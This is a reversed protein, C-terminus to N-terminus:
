VWRDTLYWGSNNRHRMLVKAPYVLGARRALPLFMDPLRRVAFSRLGARAGEKGGHKRWAHHAEEHYRGIAERSVQVGHMRFGALPVTVGVLEAHKSFRMWLEFDGALPFEPDFGGGAREWLSRRWFTSEQQVTGGYYGAGGPTYDGALFGERAFGNLERCSVARGKADWRLPYLTTLWEIEPFLAFIEGVVSLTWPNHMDDSNLWGMVEGTGRAFGREIARYQGGDPGSEFHTLRDAYKAIKEVAGDTSGGDQVIYELYPYKQELVSLIAAEIYDGQNYSPTVLTISVGDKVTM